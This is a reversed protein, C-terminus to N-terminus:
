RWTDGVLLRYTDIKIFFYLYIFKNKKFFVLFLFFVFFAPWPTAMPGGRTSRPPPAAGVGLPPRPVGGGNALPPGWGKAQRKEKKKKRKQKKKKKFFFFILKNIKKYLHVCTAM